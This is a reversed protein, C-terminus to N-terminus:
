KKKIPNKIVKKSKTITMAGSPRVFTESGNTTKGLKGPGNLKMRNKHELAERINHAEDVSAPVNIRAKTDTKVRKEIGKLNVQKQLAM